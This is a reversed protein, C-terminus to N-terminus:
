HRPTSSLDWPNDLPRDSANVSELDSAFDEDVPVVAMADLLERLTARRAGAIPVLEAVPKDNRLLVYVDGTHRVRALCEGLNRGAWTTSVPIKM